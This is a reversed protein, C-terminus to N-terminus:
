KKIIEKKIIKGKATYKNPNLLSYSCQGDKCNEEKYSDYAVIGTEDLEVLNYTGNNMGIIVYGLKKWDKTYLVVPNKNDTIFFYGLKTSIFAPNPMFGCFGNNICTDSISKLIDTPVEIRKNKKNVIITKGYDENPYAIFKYSAYNDDEKIEDIAFITDNLYAYMKISNQYLTTDIGTKAFDEKAKADEIDVLELKFKSDSTKYIPKGTEEKVPTVSPIPTSSTNTHSNDKEQFFIIYVVYGIIAIIIVVLLVIIPNDKFPSEKTIDDKKELNENTLKTEDKIENNM